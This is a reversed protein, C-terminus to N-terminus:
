EAEGESEESSDTPVQPSVLFTYNGGSYRIRLAQGFDFLLIDDNELTIGDLVDRLSTGSIKFNEMTKVHAKLVKSEIAGLEVDAEHMTNASISRARITDNLISFQVIDAEILKRFSDLDHAALATVTISLPKDGLLQAEHDKFPPPEPLTDVDALQYYFNSTGQKIVFRGKDISVKVEGKYYGIVKTFEKLNAVAFEGDVPFTITSQASVAVETDDDSVVIEFDSKFRAQKIRDKMLVVKLHTALTEADVVHTAKKATM